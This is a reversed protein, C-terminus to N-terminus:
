LPIKPINTNLNEYVAKMFNVNKDKLKIKGTFTNDKKSQVVIADYIDLYPSAQTMVMATMPDTYLVEKFDNPYGAYNINAYFVVPATKFLEAYETSALSNNGFGQAANDIIDESNTIVLVKNQVGAYVTIGEFTIEYNNGRPKALPGIKAILEKLLQDDKVTAHLSLVPIIKTELRRLTDNTTYDYDIVEKQITKLGNFSLMFDGGFSNFIDALKFGIFTKLYQDIQELNFGPNAKFMNAIMNYYEKPNIAISYVALAKNKPLMNLLAPNLGDKSLNGFKKAFEETMKMDGSIVLEGQAFEGYVHMTSGTMDLGMMKYMQAVEPNANIIAFDMWFNIDKKKGYFEKFDDNATISNDGSLGMLEKFKEQTGGAQKTDTVILFKDNNWGIAVSNEDIMTFEGDKKTKIPAGFEKAMKDLIGQLKAADDLKISVCFYEGNKTMYMFIDEKFNIGAISPDSFFEELFQAPKPNTKTIAKKITAFMPSKVFDKMEGKEVISNLNVTVVMPADKPIVNLLESQKSCSLLFFSVVFLLAANRMIIFKKM